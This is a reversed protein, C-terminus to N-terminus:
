LADTFQEIFNVSFNNSADFDQTNFILDVNPVTKNRRTMEKVVDVIYYVVHGIRSREWDAFKYDQPLYYYVSSNVIQLRVLAKRSNFFDDMTSSNFDYPAGNLRNSIIRDFSPILKEKVSNGTNNVLEETLYAQHYLFLFTIISLICCIYTLIHLIKSKKLSRSYM